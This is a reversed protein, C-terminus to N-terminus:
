LEASVQSSIVYIVVVQNWPAWNIGSALGYSALPSTSPWNGVEGGGVFYGFLNVERQHPPFIIQVKSINGQFSQLLDSM